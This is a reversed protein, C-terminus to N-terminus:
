EVSVWQDIFVKFGRQADRITFRSPLELKDVPQYQTYELTYGNQQLSLIRGSDDLQLADLKGPAPLGLVWYRLGEVPVSWGFQEQMFAAPDDTQYTGDKTRVQMGGPMGSVAVAGVGLPGYFRAQYTSGTQIWSLDGGFSVLGTEALRGQLTFSQVQQLASRRADWASQAQPTNATGPKVEEPSLFCGSLLATLATAALAQALRRLSM